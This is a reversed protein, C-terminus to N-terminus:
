IQDSGVWIYFLEIIFSLILFLNFFFFVWNLWTLKCVECGHAYYSLRMSFFVPFFTQIDIGLLDFSFM